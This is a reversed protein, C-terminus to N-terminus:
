RAARANSFLQRIYLRKLGASSYLSNNDTKTFADPGNDVDLLIIDYRTTDQRVFTTVDAVITRVRPDRVPYSTCAGLPGHNWDVIERVLEIVDISDINPSDINPELQKQSPTNEDLAKLAAALTFGMGLGGILIRPSTTEVSSTRAELWLQIAMRALAQESHFERSTMLEGAGHLRISFDDGHQYLRLENGSTGPVSATALLTWPIM